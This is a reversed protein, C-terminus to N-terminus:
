HSSNLRTSKRDTNHLLDRGKKGIVVKHLSEQEVKAIQCNFFKVIGANYSGCLGKDSTILIAIKLDGDEKVKGDKLIPLTQLLISNAVDLISYNESLMQSAKALKNAAVLQMAKTIKKTSSISTIRKRLLKLNAM